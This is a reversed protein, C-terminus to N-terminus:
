LDYPNPGAIAICVEPASDSATKVVPLCAEIRELERFTEELSYSHGCINIALKLIPLLSDFFLDVCDKADLGACESLLNFVEKCIPVMLKGQFINGLKCIAQSCTMPPVLQHFCFAVLFDEFINKLSPTFQVLAVAVKWSAVPLKAVLRKSKNFKSVPKDEMEELSFDILCGNTFKDLLGIDAVM